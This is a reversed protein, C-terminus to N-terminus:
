SKKKKTKLADLEQQLKKMKDNGSQLLVTGVNMLTQYSSHKSGKSHVEKVMGLERDILKQGQKEEKIIEIERKQAEKRWRGRAKKEFISASRGKRPSMNRKEMQELDERYKRRAERFVTLM